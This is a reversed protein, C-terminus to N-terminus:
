DNGSSSEKALNADLEKQFIGTSRPCISSM